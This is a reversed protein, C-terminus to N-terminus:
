TPGTPVLHWKSLETRSIFILKHDASKLVCFGTAENVKILKYGWPSKLWRTYERGIIIPMTGPTDDHYAM